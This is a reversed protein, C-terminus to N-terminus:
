WDSCGKRGLRSTTVSFNEPVVEKYGCGTSSACSNYGLRVKERYLSPLESVSVQRFDCLQTIISIPDSRLGLLVM